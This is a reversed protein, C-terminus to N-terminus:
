QNIGKAFHYDSDLIFAELEKRHAECCVNLITVDTSIQDSVLFKLKIAKAKECRIKIAFQKIERQEFKMSDKSNKIENQQMETDSNEDYIQDLLNRTKLNRKETFM